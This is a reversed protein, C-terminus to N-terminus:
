YITLTQEGQANFSASCDVIFSSNDARAMLQAVGVTIGRISLNMRAYGDRTEALRLDNDDMDFVLVVSDDDCSVIQPNVTIDDFIGKLEATGSRYAINAPLRLSVVVNDQRTLVDEENYEFDVTAVTDANVTLTHDNVQFDVISYDDSGGGGCGCVFVLSILSVFIVSIRKM